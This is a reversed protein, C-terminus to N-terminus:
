AHLLSRRRRYPRVMEVVKRRSVCDRARIGIRRRSRRRLRLKRRFTPRSRLRYIVNSLAANPKSTQRNWDNPPLVVYEGLRFSSRPASGGEGVAVAHWSPGEWMPAPSVGAASHCHNLNQSPLRLARGVIPFTQSGPVHDGASRCGLPRSAAENALAVTQRPLARAARASHRSTSTIPVLFGQRRYVPSVLRVPPFSSSRAAPEKCLYHLPCSSCM